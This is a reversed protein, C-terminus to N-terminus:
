MKNVQKITSPLKIIDKSIIVAGLWTADEPAGNLWWLGYRESRTNKLSQPLSIPVLACHQKGWSALLSPQIEIDHYVVWADVRMNQITDQKFARTIKLSTKNNKLIHEVIRLLKAKVELLTKTPYVFIIPKSM